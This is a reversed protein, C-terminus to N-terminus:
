PVENTAFAGELLPTVGLRDAWLELYERDLQPNIAIVGTVDRWQQESTEGDLKYWRLNAL